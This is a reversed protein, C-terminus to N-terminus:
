GLVDGGPESVVCELFEHGVVGLEEFNDGDLIEDEGVRGRGGGHGEVEEGAEGLPEVEVAAGGDEEAPVRVDEADEVVGGEVAGEAVEGGGGGM